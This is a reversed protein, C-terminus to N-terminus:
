DERETKNGKRERIELRVEEDNLLPVGSAVIEQRLQAYHEALNLPGLESSALIINVRFDRLDAANLPQGVTIAGVAFVSTSLARKFVPLAPFSVGEVRASPEPIQHETTVLGAIIQTDLKTPDLKINM